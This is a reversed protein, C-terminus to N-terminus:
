AGILVANLRAVRDASDIETVTVGPPVVQVNAYRVGGDRHSEQMIRNAFADHAMRDLRFKSDGTVGVEDDIRVIDIYQRGPIKMAQLTDRLVCQNRQQNKFRGPVGCVLRSRSKCHSEAAVIGEILRWLQQPFLKLLANSRAIEEDGMMRMPAVRVVSDVIWFNDRQHLGNLRM